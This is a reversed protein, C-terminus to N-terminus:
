NQFSNHTWADQQLTWANQQVFLTWANQQVFIYVKIFVFRFWVHFIRCMNKSLRVKHKLEYLFRLNFTFSHHTPSRSLFFFANKTGDSPFEKLLQTEHCYIAYQICKWFICVKVYWFANSWVSKNSAKLITSSFNASKLFCKYCNIIYELSYTYVKYIHMYIYIYIYIYIYKGAKLSGRCKVTM